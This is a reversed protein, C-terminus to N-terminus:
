EADVGLEELLHSANEVEDLMWLLYRVDVHISRTLTPNFLWDASMAEYNGDFLLGVFRGQSDLTASGSNGGTTDLTSLFNVPVDGLRPDKWREGPQKAAELLRAPANFPAPGNKAVVGSLTTQPLAQLGDRPSYGKVNGVTVRLTGNADPYLDGDAHKRLADVREPNLRLRAGANEKDRARQPAEHDELAVALQVWPDNSKRLEAASQKLLALRADTEALAPETFLKTLAADVGGWSELLSMVPAPQSEAPLAVLRKLSEALVARDAPLWLTRELRAFRQEIRERDRDQYGADRELDPKSSEDALRLAIYSTRLLDLRFLMNVLSGAEFLREAEDALADLEAFVPGYRRNRRRDSEVWALLAAEEAEKDEVVTSGTFGDLMGQTYKISNAFGALTSNLRAAAEPDKDAESQLLAHLTQGLELRFPYSRDRAFRMSRATRYRYTSGPYGAVMVFDDPKIGEPNVELHHPPQYAVNDEAHNAASGDPAVYVRLLAMDGSHRPWMWNDIEDGYNGVSGPPAYVLRVDRLRRKEILRYEAGGWYSAVRCRVNPRGEECSQILAKKNRSIRQERAVDRTRRRVGALVDLTVDTIKEVVQVESGPGVWLEADRDAALYGDTNYDHDADSLYSLYGSICHHNTAILGDPSVFSASCFGMTVIAGLPASTTDGLVDADLTLGLGRLARARQPLQEPLWMGEDALSPASLLLVALVATM